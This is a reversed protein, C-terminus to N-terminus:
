DLEENRKNPKLKAKMRREKLDLANKENRIIRFVNTRKENSKFANDLEEELDNNTGKKKNM